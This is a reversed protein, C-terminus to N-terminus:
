IKTWTSWGYYWSCRRIYVGCRSDNYDQFCIQFGMPKDDLMYINSFICFDGSSVDFPLNTSNAISSSHPSYYIGFRM